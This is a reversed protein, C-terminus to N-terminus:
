NFSKYELDPMQVGGSELIYQRRLEALRKEEADTNHGNWLYNHYIKNAEDYLAQLIDQM